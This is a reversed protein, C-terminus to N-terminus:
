GISRERFQAELVFRRVYGRRRDDLDVFALGLTPKGDRTEGSRVIRAPVLISCGDDLDLLITVRQGVRSGVEALLVVRVGTESLDDTVGDVRRGDITLLVPRSLPLRYAGRRQLRMSHEIAIWWQQVVDVTGDVIVGEARRLATRSAWTLTARAGRPVGGESAAVEFAPGVVLVASPSLDEVRTRWVREAHELALEVVSGVGPLAEHDERGSV